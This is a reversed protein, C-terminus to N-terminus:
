KRAVAVYNAILNEAPLVRDLTLGLVNNLLYLLRRGFPVPDAYLNLIQFLCSYQGGCNHIKVQGFPSLVRRLGADTWRWYDAEGHKFWVGHTSLILTGGKALVRYAEQITRQPDPDHELVQTCIVVDFTADRFPLHEGVALVDPASPLQFDVGVYSSCRGEFFSAYPKSGCGLDLIRLEDGIVRSRIEEGIIASLPALHLYDRDGIKPHLRRDPLGPHVEVTSLALPSFAPVSPPAPPM